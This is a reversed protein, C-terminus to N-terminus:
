YQILDIGKCTKKRVAIPDRPSPRSRWYEAFAETAKAYKGCECPGCSKVTTEPRLKVFGEEVSGEPGEYTRRQASWRYVARPLLGTPANQRPGIEIEQVGDGDLDRRRWTWYSSLCVDDSGYTSPGLVVSLVPEQQEDVPVVHLARTTWAREGEGGGYPIVHAVALADTGAYAFVDDDDELMNANAFVRSFRGQSDVISFPGKPKGPGFREDEFPWRHFVLYFPGESAQPAIVVHNVAGPISTCREPTYTDDTRKLGLEILRCAAADREQPAALM